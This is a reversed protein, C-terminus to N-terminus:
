ILREIDSLYLRIRSVNEPGIRLLLKDLRPLSELQPDAYEYLVNPRLLEVEPPLVPLNDIKNQLTAVSERLLQKAGRREGLGALAENLLPTLLDYLAVAREAPLRTLANVYPDYRLHTTSDLYYLEGIQTVSFNQAPVLFTLQRHPVQGAAANTLVSGARALLEERELWVGPLQWDAIQERVFNDSDTLPPLEVAPLVPDTLDTVPATVPDPAIAVKDSVEPVNQPPPDSIAPEVVTPTKEVGTWANIESWYNVVFILGIAALVGAILFSVRM